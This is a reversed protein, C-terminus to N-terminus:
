GFNLRNTTPKQPKNGSGANRAEEKARKREAAEAQMKLFFDLEEKFKAFMIDVKTQAFSRTFRVELGSNDLQPYKGHTNLEFALAFPGKTGGRNGKVDYKDVDLVEIDPYNDEIMEMLSTIRNRPRADRLNDSWESSEVEDINDMEDFPAEPVDMYEESALIHRLVKM